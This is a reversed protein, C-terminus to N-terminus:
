ESFLGEKLRRKVYPCYIAGVPNHALVRDKAVFTTVWAKSRQNFLADHGVCLGMAINLETGARNLLEAQGTPNCISEKRGKRVLPFRLEKKSFGGSKCCVSTIKFHTRLMDCAIRAEERFGKCFAVGLHSFGAERAFLAIEEFRTASGYFKAEVEAAAKAIKLLTPEARFWSKTEEKLDFCDRGQSCDFHKCRDCQPNVTKRSNKPTKKTAM